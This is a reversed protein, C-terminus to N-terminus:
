KMCDKKVKRKLMKMDEKEDMHKEKKPKKMEKKHKMEKAMINRKQYHERELRDQQQKEAINDALKKIWILTQFNRM